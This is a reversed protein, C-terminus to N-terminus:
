LGDQANASVQLQGKRHQHLEPERKGQEEPVGDVILDAAEPGLVCASGGKLHAHQQAQMDM